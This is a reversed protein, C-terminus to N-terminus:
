TAINETSVIEVTIRFRKEPISEYFWVHIHGHFPKTNIVM